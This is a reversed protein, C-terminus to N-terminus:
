ASKREIIGKIFKILFVGIILAVGLLTLKIAIGSDIVLSFYIFLGMISLSLTAIVCFLIFRIAKPVKKSKAGETAVELFIELIIEILDEM